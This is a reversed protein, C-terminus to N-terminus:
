FTPARGFPAVSIVGVTHGAPHFLYKVVHTAPNLWFLSGSAADYCRSLGFVLLRGGVPGVITASPNGPVRVQHVSNGRSVQDISACDFDVNLYLKGDLPWGDQEATPVSASTFATVRGTSVNFLWLREPGRKTFCTALVTGAKSWRVPTCYSYSAPPPLRKVIGGVNSVEELGRAAGAIVATGDPTYLAGSDAKDAQGLVKQQHGQLDYRILKGNENIALLNLGDPKTYGIPEVGRPLAFKGILKGTVLSVQELVAAAPYTPQVKLLVRQRDGSWDIVFPVPGSPKWSYFAYKKGQPSVLYLTERGLKDQTPHGPVQTGTSYQVVTWGPGAQTWVVARPRAAPAAALATTVSATGLAASLLMLVGLRLPKRIAISTTM